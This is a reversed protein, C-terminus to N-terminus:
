KIRWHIQPHGDPDNSQGREVRDVRELRPYVTITTAALRIGVHM